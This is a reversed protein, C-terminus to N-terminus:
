TQVEWYSHGHQWKRVIKGSAIEEKLENMFSAVKKHPPYIPIGDLAVEYWLSSLDQNKKPSYVFHVSIPEQINSQRLIQDWRQYISRDIGIEKPVIVLLDIDSDDHPTGRAWSGFLYVGLPKQPLFEQLIKLAPSIKELFPIEGDGVRGQFSEKLIQNCLQNLSIGSAYARQMLKRHLAEDARVLFSGSYSRKM